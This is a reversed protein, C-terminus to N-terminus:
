QWWVTGVAPAAEREIADMVGKSFDQDLLAFREASDDSAELLRSCRHYREWAESLEPDNAFRRVLLKAEGEDLEGDMMASLQERLKESM